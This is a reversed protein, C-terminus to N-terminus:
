LAGKPFADASGTVLVRAMDPDAVLITYGRFVRLGILPGHTEFLKRSELWWVSRDRYEKIKWIFGFPWPNM